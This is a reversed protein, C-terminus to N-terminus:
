VVVHGGFGCSIETGEARMFFTESVLSWVEVSDDSIEHCLTTIEGVVVASSTLADVSPSKSVLIEFEFM